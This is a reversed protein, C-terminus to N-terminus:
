RGEFADLMARISGLTDAEEPKKDRRWHLIRPFRVAVGSKHRSSTQLGEFALEFVLKPKVRRVPGFSEITNNRIFRDVEDIEADTLGSYAKTFPVLETDNWVAFTYDTYLTARRGHGRQAYVMVADVTYPDVKWKWWDGRHRGVRYPSDLRKLMFGEVRRSRSEERVEALAEWTAADVVESIPIRARADDPLAALISELAARREALPRTRADEGDIELLDFALLVVPVDRQLKPGVTKRGIRKQLEAFPMVSGGSWPLLEGDVVVGDPLLEAAAAIEPYRDTVLEEGRSWLFTQGARRVLQARIGDWKWEVQWGARDGLSEPGGDLQHALHFPYPRSVDADDTEPDLLRAFFQPTPEWEGMMRHAVADAPLGGTEALARVVLQQSVGVRFGSTVLKNWVFREAPGLERWAALMAERQAEADMKQLPLLRQEVWVALPQEEAEADGEGPLLLAITEALDGVVTYSEEFLWDPVGAERSAWDRLLPGSVLRRIKRGSLFFIAWASDAPTASQFYRVLAALKENTKTTRDLETYLQTFAKM